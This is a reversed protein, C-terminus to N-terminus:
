LPPTAVMPSPPPSPPSPSGAPRVLGARLAGLLVGAAVASTEARLVNPGLAVRRGEPVAALEEDSWGGEPGVLVTPTALTLPGGGQEALAVAGSGPRGDDGGVLASFPVPGEVLPLWCRRSQMAAQRAIERLRELQRGQNNPAWRAVCRDTVMIVVRDAGAETLKQVAWEPHEGKTLACAVTLLPDPRPEWTPDSLLGLPGGHWECLRSGGRGDSVSVVEGPRLRLARSFHHVDQDSLAPRALDDIFAHAVARRM